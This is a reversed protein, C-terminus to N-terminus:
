TSIQKDVVDHVENLRGVTITKPHGALGELIGIHPKDFFPNNKRNCGKSTIHIGGVLDDDFGKYDYKFYSLEIPL